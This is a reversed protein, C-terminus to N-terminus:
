CTIWARRFQADPSKALISADKVPIRTQYYYRNRVWCRIEDPALAGEHMRLNFPHKDHYRETGVQRLRAELEARSWTM